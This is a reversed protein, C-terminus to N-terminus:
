ATQKRSKSIPGPPATTEDPTGDETTEQEGAAGRKSRGEAAAAKARDIQKEIAAKRAKTADTAPRQDQALLEAELTDVNNHHVDEPAM